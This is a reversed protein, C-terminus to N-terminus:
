CLCSVGVYDVCLLVCTWCVGHLGLGVNLPSIVLGHKLASGKGLWRGLVFESLWQGLLISRIYIHMYIFICICTHIYIYINYRGDRRCTLDGM